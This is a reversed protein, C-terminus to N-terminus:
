AGRRGASTDPVQPALRPQSAPLMPQTEGLVRRIEYLEALLAESRADLGAFDDVAGPVKLVANFRERMPEPLAHIAKIAFLSADQKRMDLSHHSGWSGIQQEFELILDGVREAATDTDDGEIVRITAIHRQERDLGSSNVDTRVPYEGCKDFTLHFYRLTFNRATLECNEYWYDFYGEHGEVTTKHLPGWDGKRTIDRGRHDTQRRGLGSPILVNMLAPLDASLKNEIALRLEVQRQPVGLPLRVVLDSRGDIALRVCLPKRQRARQYLWRGFPVAAGAVVVGFTAYEVWSIHTSGGVAALLALM